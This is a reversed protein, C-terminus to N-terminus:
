KKVVVGCIKECNSFVIWDFFGGDILCRWRNCDQIEEVYGQCDKGGFQFLFNFCSCMCKQFGDDGCMKSCGGYVSWEIFGGDIFCEKVICKGEEVVNGFQFEVCFKGFFGFVFNICM